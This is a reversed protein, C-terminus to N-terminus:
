ELAQLIDEYLTMTGVNDRANSLPTEKGECCALFHTMEGTFGRLYLDRMTGSMPSTSPTFVTDQEKLGKWPLDEFTQSAHIRLTEIEVAEAFGHDFTVQLRESERSWATMGSLFVTGVIGNQFKLTLCQSIHPGVSNKFGKVNRVEGFLYRLLDVIHIAAFKLYQEDNECFPTSDVAFRAEFSRVSGLEEQQILTHLSKYVPAYRKMFGVMVQVGADEAADAIAQAEDKTMGLPKEVFVHKGSKICDMVLRAQDQPQAVVIVGDCEEEELMTIHHDYANGTSGFRLLTKKSNEINRTAVAKITAGAEILSPYINTTAHFGAGIMCISPPTM